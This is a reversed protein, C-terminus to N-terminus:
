QTELLAVVADEDHEKAYDAATKQMMCNADRRAGADLLLRTMAEDGIRAALM